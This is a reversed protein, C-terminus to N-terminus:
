RYIFKEKLVYTIGDMTKITLEVTCDDRGRDVYVRPPIFFLKIKQWLTIDVWCRRVSM